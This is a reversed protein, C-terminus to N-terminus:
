SVFPILRLSTTERILPALPVETLSLTYRVGGPVSPGTALVSPPGAERGSPPVVSYDEADLAAVASKLRAQAGSLVANAPGFMRTFACYILNATRCFDPHVSVGFDRGEPWHQWGRPDVLYAKAKFYGVEALPLELHWGQDDQVMPLDRWSAGAPPLGRTHSELIERRLVEARGLNTRLLAKWGKAPRHGQRDCTTFRIRDGVFRQLRQGPQPWM